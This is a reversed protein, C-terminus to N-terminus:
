SPQHNEFHSSLLVEALPEYPAKALFWLVSSLDWIPALYRSVTSSLEFSCLFVSNKSDTGIDEIGRFSLNNFLM